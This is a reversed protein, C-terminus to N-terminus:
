TMPTPSASANESLNFRSSRARSAALTCAMKSVSGKISSTNCPISAAVFQTSSMSSHSPM